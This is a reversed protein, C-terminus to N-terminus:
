NSLIENPLLTIMTLTVVIVKMLSDIWRDLGHSLWRSPQGSYAKIKLAHLEDMVDGLLRFVTKQRNVRTMDKFDDTVVM